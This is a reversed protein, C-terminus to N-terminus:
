ANKMLSLAKAYFVDCVRLIQITNNGPFRPDKKMENIDFGRSGSGSKDLNEYEFNGRQSTIETRWKIIETKDDLGNMVDVM